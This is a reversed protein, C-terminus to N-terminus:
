KTRNQPIFTKGEWQATEASQIRRNKREMQQCQIQEELRTWLLARMEPASIWDNQADMAWMLTSSDYKTESTDHKIKPSKHNIKVLEEEQKLLALTNPDLPQGSSTFSNHDTTMVISQRDGEHPLNKHYLQSSHFFVLDGPKCDIVIKLDRFALEGGTWDCGVPAVCCCGERYDNWDVHPGTGGFNVICMLFSKSCECQQDPTVLSYLEYLLKDIGAFCTDVMDFFEQVGPMLKFIHAGAWTDQSLNILFAYHRWFGIHAVDLKFMTKQTV